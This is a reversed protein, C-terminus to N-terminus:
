LKKCVIMQTSQSYNTLRHDLIKFFRGIYDRFEQMTWERQHAQNKPPGFYFPDNDKYLFEKAPTSIVLYKFNQCQLYELAKTPNVLHEIVDSFIIVDVNLENRLSFDTELWLKNPYKETLRKINEPLEVGITKYDKFYTILKYASGCGIDAVSSYDNKIILGLAFLYVELQWADTEDLDNYHFYKSPSMYSDVIAYRSSDTYHSYFPLDGNKFIDLDKVLIDFVSNDDILGNGICISEKPLLTKRRPKYGDFFLINTTFTNENFIVLPDDIHSKANSNLILALNIDSSVNAIYNISLSLYCSRLRDMNALVPKEGLRTCDIESSIVAISYFDKSLKEILNLSFHFNDRGEIAIVCDFYSGKNVLSEYDHLLVFGKPTNLYIIENKLANSIKKWYAPSSVVVIASRSVSIPKYVSANDIYSDIYGVVNSKLIDPMMENLNISLNNYPALFIENNSCVSALADMDLFM